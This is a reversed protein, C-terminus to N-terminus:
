NVTIHVAFKDPREGLGGQEVVTIVRGIPIVVDIEVNLVLPAICESAADVIKPEIRGRQCLGFDLLQDGRLDRGELRRGPLVRLERDGYALEGARLSNQVELVERERLRREGVGRQVKRVRRRTRVPGGPRDPRQM